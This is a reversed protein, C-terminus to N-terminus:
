TVATDKGIKETARRCYDGVYDPTGSVLPSMPVSGMICVKGELVEKARVVDVNEFWYIIKGEPVDVITEIRSTYDGEVLVIPTLGEKVLGPLLERLTPWYFRKFQELSMFGEPGRHLPIFVRPCQSMRAATVGMELMWPLLKEVTALVKDARRHTDLAVGKTGRFFDGLTDFPAQAGGGFLIPFGSGIVEQIYEITAGASEMSAEAAKRIADLAELGPPTAFPIFNTAGMCYCLTERFSPMRSFVGLRAFIRPWYRRIIFDTRDYLSM